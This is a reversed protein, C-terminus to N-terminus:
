MYCKSVDYMKKEEEFYHKLLYILSLFIDEHLAHWSCKERLWCEYLCPSLM